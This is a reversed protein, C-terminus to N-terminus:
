SFGDEPCKITLSLGDYNQISFSYRINLTVNEMNATAGATAAVRPLRWPFPIRQKVHEKVVVVALREILKAVTARENLQTPSLATSTELPQLQRQSTSRLSSGLLAASVMVRRFSSMAMSPDIEPFVM